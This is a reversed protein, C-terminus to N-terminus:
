NENWEFHARVYYEVDHLYTYMALDNGGNYKIPRMGKSETQIKKMIKVDDIIWQFTPKWYIFETIGKLAQYTPVMYSCKEGGTKTIPDTFLAYKGYVKYEVVNPYKVNKM